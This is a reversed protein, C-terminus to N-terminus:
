AAEALREFYLAARTPTIFDGNRRLLGAGVLERVAVEVADRRDWEDRDNLALMVEAYTLQDPHEGILFDLVAHETRRALEDLSPHGACDRDMPNDTAM